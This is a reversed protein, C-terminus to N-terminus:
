EPAQFADRLWTLQGQQDLIADFRCNPTSSLGALYLRAAHIVRGQKTRTISAAAGGYQHGSRSRVEIFVLTDGDRMILDIEGGRTRWNRAVPKLGQGVLYREARLESEAGSPM